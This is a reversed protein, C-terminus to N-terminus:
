PNSDGLSWVKKASRRRWWLDAIEPPDALVLRNISMVSQRVEEDAAGTSALRFFRKIAKLSSELEPSAVQRAFTVLKTLQSQVARVDSSDLLGIAVLAAWHVLIEKTLGPENNKTSRHRALLLAGQRQVDETEVEVRRFSDLDLLWAERVGGTRHLILAASSRDPFARLIISLISHTLGASELEISLPDVTADITLVRCGCWALGVAAMGTAGIGLAERADAEGLDVEVARAFAGTIVGMAVVCEQAAILADIVDEQPWVDDTGDRQRVVVTEGRDEYALHAHAIRLPKAFGYTFPACRDDNQATQIVHAGDERVRQEFSGKGVLELALAGFRRGPGEFLAHILQIAARTEQRTSTAREITLMTQSVQDALQLFGARLESAV